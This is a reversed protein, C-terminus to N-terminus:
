GPMLIRATQKMAARVPHYLVLMLVLNGAAHTIDYPIGAVWWTFGAYLGGWLGNGAAGVVVYPIAFLFGFLLGFGGSLISWFLVSEQKRFIWALLALLPWAYLYSVWWINVGYILGEILVFAPIALFIRWGFFLTFLIIWFSVLEINPLFNLALKSVEMVAVMMGILTIDRISLKGHGEAKKHEEM